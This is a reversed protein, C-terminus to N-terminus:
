AERKIAERIWEAIQKQSAVRGASILKENIVLGPTMMLGYDMFVKYDSIKEVVGNIEPYEARVTELAMKASQELSACKACGPGLVKINLM